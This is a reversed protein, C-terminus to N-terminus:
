RIVKIKAKKLAKRLPPAILSAFIIAIVGNIISAVMKPMVAVTAASFISGALMLNIVSKAFYLAIYSLSGITAATITRLISPERKQIDVDLNDKVTIKTLNHNAITGCIYAMLFFNLLTTPASAVFRPNTLDFFFSGIGASLGGRLGGFLLGSLICFINAVKLMTTGTPTPIEIRFFYTTVFVVAAMLGVVAFDYINLPRKEYEGAAILALKETNYKQTRKHATCVDYFYFIFFIAGFILQLIFFIKDTQPLIEKVKLGMFTHAFKFAYNPMSLGFFILSIIFKAVGSATKNLMFRDFGFAGLLISAIFVSNPNKYNYNYIEDQKKENLSLLKKKLATAKGESINKQNILVYSEIENTTM